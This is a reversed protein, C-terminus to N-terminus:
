RESAKWKGLLQIPDSLEVVRWTSWAPGLSGAVAAM